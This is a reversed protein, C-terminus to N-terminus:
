ALRDSFAGFAVPSEWVKVSLGEGGAVRAADALAGHLWRAFVEVTVAEVGPPRITELDANRVRGAVEEVAADLVDLDCVMGRDDLEGRWVAVEIRYDHSHLEGEPGEMGPMVHMARVTTGTGVEYM